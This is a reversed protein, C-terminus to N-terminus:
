RTGEKSRMAGVLEWKVGSRSVHLLFCCLFVGVVAVGQEGRWM